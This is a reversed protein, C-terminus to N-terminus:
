ILFIIQLFIYICMLQKFFHFGFKLVKSNNLRKNTFYYKINKVFNWAM